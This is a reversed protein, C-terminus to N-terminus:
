IPYPLSYYSGERMRKKFSAPLSVLVLKCPRLYGCVELNPFTLVTLMACACNPNDKSFSIDVGAIHHLGSFLDDGKRWSLVDEDDEQVLQSKLTEQERSISIFKCEDHDIAFWLWCSKSHILLLSCIEWREWEQRKAIEEPSLSIEENEDDAYLYNKVLVSKFWFQQMGMICKSAPAASSAMKESPRGWVGGRLGCRCQPSCVSPM